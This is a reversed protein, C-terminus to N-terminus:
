VAVADAWARFAEPRAAVTLRAIPNTLSNGKKAGARGVEVRLRGDTRVVALCATQEAPYSYANAVTGGGSAHWGDSDVIAARCCRLVDSLTLTRVRRRGNCAALSIEVAHLQNATLPDRYLAVLRRQHEAAALNGVDELADAYILRLDINHRDAKLADALSDVTTNVVEAAATISSM